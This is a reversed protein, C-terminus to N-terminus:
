AGGRGWARALGCAARRLPGPRALGARPLDAACRVCGVPRTHRGARVEGARVAGGGRRRGAASWGAHERAGRWRGLEKDRVANPVKEPFGRWRDAAAPLIIEDIGAPERDAPDAPQRAGHGALLIVVQASERAEDALRRFEREINARTPRRDPR